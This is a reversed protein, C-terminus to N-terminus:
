ATVNLLLMSYYCQTSANLLLMSYYCQTTVNLLLMSYLCQTTVNLLLMSYYCQTTVNLLLMSYYCQTSVNLQLMSRRESSFDRNRLSSTEHCTRSKQFEQILRNDQLSILLYFLASVHSHTLVLVLSFIRGFIRWIFGDIM